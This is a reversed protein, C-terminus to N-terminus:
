GVLLAYCYHFYKLESPQSSMSGSIRISRFFIAVWEQYEKDRLLFYYSIM